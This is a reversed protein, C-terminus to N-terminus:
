KKAKIYTRIKSAVSEPKRNLRKGIQTYNLGMNYLRELEQLEEKSWAKRKEKKDESEQLRELLLINTLELQEYYKRELEQKQQELARYQEIGVKFQKEVKIFYARVEKGKPTRSAMAIHKAADLTLIYEKSRRDGGKGKIESKPSIMIFDTNEILNLSNIQAKIWDAFQKKIELASYLDRASVASVEENGVIATDIKILASM